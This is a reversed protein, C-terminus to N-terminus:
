PFYIKDSPLLSKQAIAYNISAWVAKWSLGGWCGKQIHAESVCKKHSHKYGVRTRCLYWFANEQTVIFLFSVVCLNVIILFSHNSCHCSVNVEVKKQNRTCLPALSWTLFCLVHSLFACGFPNMKLISCGPRLSPSGESWPDNERKHYRAM